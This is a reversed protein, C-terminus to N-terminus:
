LLQPCCRAFFAEAVTAGWQEVMADLGPFLVLNREGRRCCVGIAHLLPAPQAHEGGPRADIIEFGAPPRESDRLRVAIRGDYRAAAAAAYFPDGAAPRALEWVVNDGWFLGGLLEDLVAVGSSAADDGFRASAPAPGPLM